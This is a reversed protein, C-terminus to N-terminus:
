KRMLLDINKAAQDLADTPRTLGRVVSEIANALITEIASNDVQYWSKATLAQSAFVGLNLDQSQQAVLDRRSIPRGTLESFKQVNDKRALWNIFQWAYQSNKARKSVAVAWYNAYNISKSSDISQPMPAIGFNLHPQKARITSITYAYNFMMAVRGEYFMDISYDMEPNWTYYQSQPSAFSTYFALLNNDKQTAEFSVAGHSQDVMKAGSQMMLLSLIDTSRNINKATGIAAGARTIRGQEDKITLRTVDDIFDTWTVPPQAINAANFHDKNYYLALTDVYFPIAYIRNNLVFDDYAVDVFTDRYQKLTMMSTPMPTLKDSHKALWTNHIYFVDPGKGAALADVLEGEYSGVLKKHYNIKIYPFQKQFDGLLQDYVISDEFVGWFELEVTKPKAGKFAFFGGIVLLVAMGIGIVPYLKKLQEPSIPM